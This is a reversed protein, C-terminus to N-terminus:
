APTRDRPLRVLLREALDRAQDLSLVVGATEQDIYVNGGVIVTPSIFDGAVVIFRHPDNDLDHQEDPTM